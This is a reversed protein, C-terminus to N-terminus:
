GRPAAPPPPPPQAAPLRPGMDPREKGPHVEGGRGAAPLSRPGAGRGPPLPPSARAPVRPRAPRGPRAPGPRAAVPPRPPRCRPPRLPGFAPVAPSPLPRRRRPLAADLPASPSQQLPRPPAMKNGSLSAASRPTADAGPVVAAWPRSQSGPASLIPPMAAVEASGRLARPAPGVPLGAVSPHSSLVARPRAPTRAAGRFAGGAAPVHSRCTVQSRRGGRM